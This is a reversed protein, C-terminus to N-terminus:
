GGLENVRGGRDECEAELMVSFSSAMLLSSRYAGM